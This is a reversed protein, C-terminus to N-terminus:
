SPHADSLQSASDSAHARLSLRQRMAEVASEPETKNTLFIVQLAAM